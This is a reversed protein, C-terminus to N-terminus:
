RYNVTFNITYGATVVFTNADTHDVVVDMNVEGATDYVWVFPRYGLNHTVSETADGTSAVQGWTGTLLGDSAITLATFANVVDVGTGGALSLSGSGWNIVADTVDHTLSIWEDNATDPDKNSHVFITPNTQVAHDYDKTQSGWGSAAGTGTFVFQQGLRDSTLFQFQDLDTSALIAGEYADYRFWINNSTAADMFINAKAYATGDFYVEGNVELKGGVLVDESGLSHGTAALVDGGIQLPKDQHSYNMIRQGNTGDTAFIGIVDKYIKVVIDSGAGGPARDVEVSNASNITVIRYFEATAATGSILHVLDGVATGTGIGTKEIDSGNITCTSLSLVITKDGILFADTNDIVSAIINDANPSLSVLSVDDVIWSGTTTHGISGWDIITAAGSSVGITTATAHNDYDWILNLDNGNGVGTITHVGDAGSQTIGATTFTVVGELLSTGVVKFNNDGVDTEDGVSLGGEIHVETGTPTLVMDAASVFDLDTTVDMYDGTGDVEFKAARVVKDFVYGYSQTSNFGWTSAAGGGSGATLVISISEDIDAADSDADGLISFQPTIESIGTIGMRVNGTSGEVFLASVINSSEVRFDVDQAAQNIVLEAQGANDADLNIFSRETGAIQAIFDVDADEAGTTTTTLSVDIKASVDGDDGDSDYIDISPTAGSLRMETDTIALYDTTTGQSYLWIGQDADFFLNRLLSGATQLYLSADADEAGTTATTLDYDWRWNVDNDAGSSDIISYSPSVGTQVINGLTDLGWLQLNDIELEVAYLATGMDVRFTDGDATVTFVGASTMNSLLYEVGADDKFYLYNDDKEYVFGYGSTPTGLTTIDASSREKFFIRYPVFNRQVFDQTFVTSLFLISLIIKKMNTMLTNLM